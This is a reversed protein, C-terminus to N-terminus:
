KLDEPQVTYREYVYFGTPWPLQSQKVPHNPPPILAYFAALSITQPPNAPNHNARAIFRAASPWFAKFQNDTLNDIFFKRYKENRSQEFVDSREMRPWEYIKFSGDKFTILAVNYMNFNKLTPSFLSWNQDLGLLIPFPSFVKYFAAFISDKGFLMVIATFIYASVFLSIWFESKGLFAFWRAISIKQMLM